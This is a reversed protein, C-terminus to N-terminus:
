GLRSAEYAAKVVGYCECASAELASRDLVTIKGRAYRILGARRLVGAAITVASRRTGLMHSLFEHQLLLEDTPVRDRVILLWRSLRAALLHHTNCGVSQSVQAMLAHVYRLLLDHLAGGRDFEAKLKSARIRLADGAVQVITLPPLADMGLCTAIATTGENGVMGIEATEGNKMACLMSLVATTPFYIYRASTGPTAVTQGLALSVPTLNPLLRKYVKHPLAALLHNAIPPSSHNQSPM